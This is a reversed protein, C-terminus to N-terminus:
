SPRRDRAATMASAPAAAVDPAPPAAAPATATKAEAEKLRQELAQIRAEYNAKLQRIQERIDALDADTAARATPPMCLALALAAPAWIFRSM